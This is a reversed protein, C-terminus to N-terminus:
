APAPLVFGDLAERMLRAITQQHQRTMRDMASAVSIAAVPRGLRDCVAMGVGLAGKAAHNGVVSWGRERTAKVLIQLRAPTMGGYRELVTGHSAIAADAEPVPLAALLALGAAGVGLPQRSGVQVALIQVPNTGVHRAICWASHGERVVAFAADGCGASVQALVPQLREALSGPTPPAPTQALSSPVSWRPGARYHYRGRPLVHGLDVLTALVRYVPARQLGCARCLEVVRLGEDGAQRLAELVRLGRRLSRGDADDAAPRPLPASPAGPPPARNDAPRVNRPAVRRPSM